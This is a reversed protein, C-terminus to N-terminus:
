MWDCFKCAGWSIAGRMGRGPGQCNRSLARALSAGWWDEETSLDGAQGEAQGFGCSLAWVQRMAKGVWDLGGIEDGLGRGEVGVEWWEGLM